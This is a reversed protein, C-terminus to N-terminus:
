RLVAMIVGYGAAILVISISIIFAWKKIKSISKEEEPNFLSNQPIGGLQDGKTPMIVRPMSNFGQNLTRATNELSGGIEPFAPFAPFQSQSQIPLVSNSSFSPLSPSKHSKKKDYLSLITLIKSDPYGSQTLLQIIQAASYELKLADNVWDEIEKDISRQEEM